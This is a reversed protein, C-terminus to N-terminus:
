SWTKERALIQLLLPLQLSFAKAGALFQATEKKLKIKHHGKQHQTWDRVSPLGM